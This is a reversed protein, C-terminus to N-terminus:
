GHRPYLPPLDGPDKATAPTLPGEALGGQLAEWLPKGQWQGADSAYLSRDLERILDAGRSARAAVAGLSRPPRDPWTEAAWGLLIRAADEANNAECAGRFAAHFGATFVSEGPQPEGATPGRATTLRRHWLLWGGLATLFLVGAGGLWPWSSQTAPTDPKQTEERYPQETQTPDSENRDAAASTQPRTAPTSAQQLAAGSGPEATVRWSPIRATRERQAVTDWWHVEIAPVVLTGAKKPVFAMSQRSIGVVSKGDTRTESVPQEPYIRLDETSELNLPPIQAGEAGQARVRITRTIPEGVRFAPPDEAWSDELTLQRAPLWHTAGYGDPRPKVELDLGRSRASIRKGTEPSGFPNQFFEDNFLRDLVPDNFSRSFFQNGHLRDFLSGSGPSTGRRGSGRGAIVSGRFVVPPIRLKGSREPFLVYRREIVQYRRGEREATYRRRDGLPKVRANEM